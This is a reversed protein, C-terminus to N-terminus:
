RAVLAAEEEQVECGAWGENLAGLLREVEALPPDIQQANAEALRMLMYDYLALLRVGIDGGGARDISGGLEALIMQARTIERSRRAIDGGRLHDRAAAVSQIAATYLIRVLEVPSASLIRNVEYVNLPM